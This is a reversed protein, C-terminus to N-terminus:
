RAPARKFLSAVILAGGIIMIIITPMILSNTVDTIMSTGVDVGLQCLAPEVEAARGVLGDCGVHGVELFSAFMGTLQSKLILALALFAAGSLLIALGPWGMFGKLGPLQFLGLLVSFGVIALIGVWSGATKGWILWGRIGDVDRLVEDKGVGRNKAIKGLPDFRDHRDLQNDRFEDLGAQILPSALPDVAVILVTTVAERSDPLALADNIEEDLEDLYGLIEPSLGRERALAKAEAYAAPRAEAAVGVLSPATIPFRPDQLQLLTEALEESLAMAREDDTGEQPPLVTLNNEIEQALFRILTPKATGEVAEVGEPTPVRTGIIPRFEVYVNPVEIPEGTTPDTEENLYEVAGRVVSEVQRRLEPPPFIGKILTEVDEEKLQINGLFTAREDEQIQSIVEPVLIADYVRNYADNESLHEFYFEESLFHSHLAHTTLYSLVGLFIMLGLILSIVVRLSSM